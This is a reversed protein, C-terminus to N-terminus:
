AVPWEVHLGGLRPPHVSDQLLLIRSDVDRWVRRVQLLAAPRDLHLVRAEAAGALRASLHDAIRVARRGTGAELHHVEGEALPRPELLRPAATATSGEFWSTSVEVPGLGDRAIRHRCCLTSGVPLGFLVAVDSPPRATRVRVLEHHGPDQEGEAPSRAVPVGAHM